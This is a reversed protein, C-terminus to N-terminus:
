SAAGPIVGLQQMLGFMDAVWWAEAVKGDAVRYIPHEIWTMRKGSAPVGSFEAEHTGTTTFRTAVLDGDAIVNELDIRLDPFATFFPGALEKFAPVGEIEGFSGGHWLFDETLLDDLADFDHRNLAEILRHVTGRAEESM